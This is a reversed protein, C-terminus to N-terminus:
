KLYTSCVAELESDGKTATWEAPALRCGDQKTLGVDHICKGNPWYIQATTLKLAEKTFPRVFTSQMIGKGYSQATKADKGAFDLYKESYDSLFINEYKLFGYSVLVGILAESASATGSNALVYVQTDKKILGNGSKRVCNYKEKRGNKYIATMATCSKDTESSTFNGAIDQMVSVYGGGNNRLDLILSTRNEANFKEIVRDFEEGAGGYFQNLKVYAANKPLFSIKDQPSEVLAPEGSGNNYRVEWASDATAYFVYSAAYVEKSLTFSRGEDNILSFKEGTERADIFATLEASSRFTVTKEGNEDTFAGKQLTEGTRLGSLYAPSNGFVSIIRAGEDPIFNYSIGLGSKEGENDRILAKYEEATYYASYKDLMGGIEKLSRGEAARADFDYFYNNKITKVAWEYSSVYAPQTFKRTFYGAAFVAATLLVAAVVAIIRKATLSSKNM